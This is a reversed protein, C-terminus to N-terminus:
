ENIREDNCHGGSDSTAMGAQDKTAANGGAMLPLPASGGNGRRYCLVMEDTNRKWLFDRVTALSMEPDVVVDNCLLEVFREDASHVGGSLGSSGNASTQAATQSAICSDINVRIVNIGGAMAEDDGRRLGFSRRSSSGASTNGSQGTLAGSREQSNSRNRGM